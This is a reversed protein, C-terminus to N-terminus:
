ASAQALEEVEAPVEAPASRDEYVKSRRFEKLVPSVSALLFFGGAMSLFSGVGSVYNADASRVQTFIWALAICAIGFGIGATIASWRWQM